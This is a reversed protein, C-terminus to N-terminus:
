AKIGAITDSLYIKVWAFLLLFLVLNFFIASSMNRYLISVRTIILYTISIFMIPILFYHIKTVGIKLAKKIQSLKNEKTFLFFLIPTFYIFISILALITIQMADQKFGILIIFFLATFSLLWILNLLTFRRLYKLTFEKKLIRCWAIGEFISFALLIFLFSIIAAIILTIIFTRLTSTVLNLEALSKLDISELNVSSLNKFPTKLLLKTIYFGIYTFLIFLLNLLFVIGLLKPKAFSNLYIRITKQFYSQNMKKFTM